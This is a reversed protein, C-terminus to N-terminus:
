KEQFYDGLGARKFAAEIRGLYRYLTTRGIGLAEAAERHTKGDLLQACLAQHNASLRAVVTQIDNGLDRLEQESRGPHQAALFGHREVPEGEPGTVTSDLSYQERHFDRMGAQRYELIGALRHEIVMAVFTHRSSRGPDFSALREIVDTRLDQKIDDLDSKAIGAKGVLQHAKHHILWEEFHDLHYQRHM